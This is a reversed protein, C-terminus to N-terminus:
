LARRSLRRTADREWTDPQSFFSYEGDKEALDCITRSIERVVSPAIDEKHKDDLLRKGNITKWFLEVDLGDIRTVHAAFIDWVCWYNGSQVLYQGPERSPFAAERQNEYEVTLPLCHFFAPQELLKSLDGLDELKRSKAYTRRVDLPIDDLRPDELSVLITPATLRKGFM